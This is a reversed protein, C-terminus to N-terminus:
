IDRRSEEIHDEPQESRERASLFNETSAMGKSFKRPLLKRGSCPFISISLAQINTMFKEAEDVAHLLIENLRRTAYMTTAATGYVAPQKELERKVDNILLETNLGM